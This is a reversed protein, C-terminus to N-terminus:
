QRRWVYPSVRAIIIYALLFRKLRLELSQFKGLLLASGRLAQLHCVLSIVVTFYCQIDIGWVGVCGATSPCFPIPSTSPSVVSVFCSPLIWCSSPFFPCYPLLFSFAFVGILPLIGEGEESYSPLSSSSLYLLLLSSFLINM